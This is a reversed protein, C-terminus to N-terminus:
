SGCLSLPERTMPSPACCRWRQTPCWTSSSCAVAASGTPSTLTLAGILEGVFPSGIILSKWLTDSAWGAPLLPIMLVGIAVEFFNFFCGLGVVTVLSRHWRGVPIGDLRNAVHRDLDLLTDQPSTRPM